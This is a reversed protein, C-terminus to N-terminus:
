APHSQRGACTASFTPCGLTAVKGDRATSSTTARCLEFRTSSMTPTPARLDIPQATVSNRPVRRNLGVFSFGGLGLVNDVVDRDASETANNDGSM